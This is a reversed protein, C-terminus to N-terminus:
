VKQYKGSGCRRKKKRLGRLVKREKMEKKQKRDRV